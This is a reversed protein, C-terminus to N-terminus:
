SLVSQNNLCYFFRDGTGFKDLRADGKQEEQCYWTECTDGEFAESQM